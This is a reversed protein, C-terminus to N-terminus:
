DKCIEYDVEIEASNKLMAYVSCYKEISLKLASELAKPEVEGKVRYLLKIREYIRPHKDRRLGTVEIEIDEVKQRKKKLITYVDVGSCGALATLLLEMSKLAREGVKIKGSPMEARYTGDEALKLVVSKKEM